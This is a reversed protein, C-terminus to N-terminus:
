CQVEYKAVYCSATKEKLSETIRSEFVRHYPDCSEFLLSLWFMNSIVKGM